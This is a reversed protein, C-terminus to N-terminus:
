CYRARALPHVTGNHCSKVCSLMSCMRSAACCLIFQVQCRTLMRESKRTQVAFNAFLVCAAYATFACSWRITNAVDMCATSFTCLVSYIYVHVKIYRATTTIHVSIRCVRQQQCGNDVKWINTCVVSLRIKGQHAAALM